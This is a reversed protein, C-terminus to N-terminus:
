ETKPKAVTWVVKESSRSKVAEVGGPDPKLELRMRGDNQVIICMM